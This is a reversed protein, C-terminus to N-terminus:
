STEESELRHRLTLLRVSLLLEAITRQAVYYWGAWGDLILGRGFLLYFFMVSSAFYIRKRLRDQASLSDDGTGLLHKAEIKSYRDQSVFWRSLPKRDDHDIRGWLELVPGDVQVRHGHGEDRSTAKDRRYLITRPPYLTSRLRRGYVCYNFAARYGAIETTPELATIEDALESTVLYDADISLVWETRAQTLGFNCQGAFSDFVRQFVRVSPHAARALEM